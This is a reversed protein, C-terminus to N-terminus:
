SRVKLGFFLFIFQFYFLGLKNNEVWCRVYKEILKKDLWEKFVLDKMSLMIKEKKKWEEIKKSEKNAQRRM